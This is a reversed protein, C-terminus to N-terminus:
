KKFFKCKKYDSGKCKYKVYSDRAYEINGGTYTNIYFANFTRPSLWSKEMQSSFGIAFPCAGCIISKYENSKNNVRIYYPCVKKLKKKKSKQM